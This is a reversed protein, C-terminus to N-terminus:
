LDIIENVVYKNKNPKTIKKKIKVDQPAAKSKSAM